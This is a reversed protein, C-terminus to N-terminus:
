VDADHSRDTVGPDREEGDQAVSVDVSNDRIRKLAIGMAPREPAFGWRISPNGPVNGRPHPASLRTPAIETRVIRGRRCSGPTCHRPRTRLGMARAQRPTQAIRTVLGPKRAMEGLPRRDRCLCALSLGVDSRASRGDPHSRRRRPRASRKRDRSTTRLLSRIPLCRDSKALPSKGALSTRESGSAGRHKRTQPLLAFFERIKGSFARSKTGKRATRASYLCQILPIRGWCGWRDGLGGCCSGSAGDPPAGAVGRGSADDSAPGGASPDAAGSWGRGVSTTLGHALTRRVKYSTQSIRSRPGWRTRARKQSTAEAPTSRPSGPSAPSIQRHASISKKRWHGQRHRGVTSCRSCSTTWRASESAWHTAGIM